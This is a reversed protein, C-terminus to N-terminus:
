WPCLCVVFGGQSFVAHGKADSEDSGTANTESAFQQTIQQTNWFKPVHLDGESM